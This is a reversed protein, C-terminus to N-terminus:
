FIDRIRARGDGCATHACCAAAKTAETAEAGVARVRAPSLFMMAPVLLLFRGIFYRAHFLLLVVRFTVLQPCLLPVFFVVIRLLPGNM